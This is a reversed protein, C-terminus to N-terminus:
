DDPREISPHVYISNTLYPMTAGLITYEGGQLNAEIVQNAGAMVIPAEQSSLAGLIAQGAGIFVVEADIGQEAFAGQEAALWVSAMTAGAPGSSAAPGCAALALLLGTTLVALPARRPPAPRRAQYSAM